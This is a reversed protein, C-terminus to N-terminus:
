NSNLADCYYLLLIYCIWKINSIGQTDLSIIFQM